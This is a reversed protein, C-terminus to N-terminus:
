MTEGARFPVVHPGRLRRSVKDTIPLVHVRAVAFLLACMRRLGGECCWGLVCVRVCVCVSYVGEGPVNPVNTTANKPARTSRTRDSLSQPTNPLTM